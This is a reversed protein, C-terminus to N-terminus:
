KRRLYGLAFMGVLGALLVLTSPEPVELIRAANIVGWDGGTTLSIVLDGNADPAISSWIMWDHNARAAVMDWNQSVNGTMNNDYNTDAYSGNITLTCKNPLGSEASVVEVKYQKGSDLGSFTQTSARAGAFGDIAAAQEVWDVATPWTEGWDFSGWTTGVTAVTTALGTNYDKLGSTTTGYSSWEIDNWNGAPVAGGNQFDVRVDLLAAQAPVSVALIMMVVSCIAILKKM